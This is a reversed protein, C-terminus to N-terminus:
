QQQRCLQPPPHTPSLLPPPDPPERRTCFSPSPLGGPLGGPLVGPHEEFPVIQMSQNVPGLGYKNVTTQTNITQNHRKSSTREYAYFVKLCQIRYYGEMKVISKQLASQYGAAVLTNADCSSDRM